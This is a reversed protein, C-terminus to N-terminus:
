TLDKQGKSSGFALKSTYILPFFLYINPKIFLATSLNTPYTKNHARTISNTTVELSKPLQIM